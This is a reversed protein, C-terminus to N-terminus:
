VEHAALVAPLEGISRIITCSAEPFLGDRDVLVPRLGARQAGVVDAYYNDGVYVTEAATTGLRKLAHHFIEPEPKWCAVEGAVLTSDFFRILGLTELQEDCSQRRNSLVGLRFGAEKLTQLTEPVEPPVWDEPRHEAKMYEHMQPALAAAQETSCGFAELQRTAFNVWFADELLPEFTELDQLLEPSQAWYYHAWRTARLRNEASDPAGLRAAQDLFTQTSGPKNERLTGDMDFLVARIGNTSLLTSGGM